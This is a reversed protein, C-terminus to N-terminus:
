KSLQTKEFQLLATKIKLGGAYGGLTGDSSIVRHCPVIIALPNKGNASGVARVAKPKQIKSAIDAYSVTHGYPIQALAQWVEIQFDTGMIDVPLDFNKREGAFYQEIQLATQKLIQKQPEPGSFSKILPINHKEWEVACLGQDSAVLYLDVIKTKLYYQLHNM